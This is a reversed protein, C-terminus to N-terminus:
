GYEGNDAPKEMAAFPIQITLKPDTARVDFAVKLFPSLKEASGLEKWESSLQFVPPGHPALSVSQHLTTSQFQRDWSITSRADGLDKMDRGLTVPGILPEVKSIKGIQWASMGNPEEWHVELRNGSGGDAISERRNKKDYVSSVVGRAPDIVVRYDANEITTNDGS